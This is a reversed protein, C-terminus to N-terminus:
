QYLCYYLIVLIHERHKYGNFALKDKQLETYATADHIAKTLSYSVWDANQIYGLISQM